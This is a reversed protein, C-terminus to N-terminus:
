KVYYAGEKVKNAESLSINKFSKNIYYYIDNYELLIEVHYNNTPVIYINVNYKYFLARKLFKIYDICTLGYVNKKSIASTFLIICEKLSLSNDIQINNKSFMFNIDKIREKVLRDYINTLDINKPTVVGIIIENMHSLAINNKLTIDNIDVSLNRILLEKNHLHYIINNSELYDIIKNYITDEDNYQMCLKMYYYLFNEQDNYEKINKYCTNLICMNYNITFKVNYNKLLNKVDKFDYKVLINNKEIFSSLALMMIDKPFSLLLTEEMFMHYEYESFELMKFLESVMIKYEKYMYTENYYHIKCKEYSTLNILRYKRNNDVEELSVIIYIIPIKIEDNIVLHTSSSNLLFIFYAYLGDDEIIAKILNKSIQYNSDLYNVDILNDQYHEINLCYLSDDKLYFGNKFFYSCNM